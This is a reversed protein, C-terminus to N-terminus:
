LANELRLERKSCRIVQEDSGSLILSRELAAESNSFQQLFKIIGYLCRINESLQSFSNSM